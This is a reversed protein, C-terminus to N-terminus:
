GRKNTAALIAPIRRVMDRNLGKARDDLAEWDKLLPHTKRFEDRAGERWGRLRLALMWRWHEMRALAEVQADDFTESVDNGLAALKVAIHDAFARNSQKAQESIDQWGPVNEGASARYAEHAAGAVTDLSDELLLDAATLANLDGFIAFRDSQSTDQEVGHLFAGLEKQQWIRPYLPTDKCDAGDMMRRLRLSVRMTPVEDELDVAVAFPPSKALIEEIEPWASDDDFAAVRTTVDACAALGPYRTALGDMMAKAKSGLLTVKLRRGPLAFAGQVAQVIVEMLTQGQGVVLLHPSATELARRAAKRFSDRKLLLRAANANLNFLRFHADGSGSVRNRATLIQNYLWESRLEIWVSLPESRQRNKLATDARLGIEINVADSGCAIFLNAARRIGALRLMASDMGSGRLVLIGRRECALAAVNQNDLSIAVVKHGADSLQEAISRGTDGLGCVIMHGKLRRVMVMKLDRHMNLLFLWIAGAVLALPMMLQALVLPWPDKDPTFRTSLRILDITRLLKEAFSATKCRDTDCISFGWLGLIVAVLGFLIVVWNRTRFVGGWVEARFYGGQPKM